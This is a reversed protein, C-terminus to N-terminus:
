PAVKKWGNSKLTDIIRSAERFSVETEYGFRKLLSAQKYTCRKAKIRRLIENYLARCHAVPLGTIDIGNRRLMAEQAATLPATIKAAAAVRTASIRFISFADVRQMEYDVRATVLTRKSKAADEKRRDLVAKAAQELAEIVDMPKGAEAMQRKAEKVVEEDHKGGLVDAACVLKHKGANGVFDITLMSPKASAAIARRRAEADQIGDVVGPLVRTGRGVMQCNGTVFAKGNRRCIIAGTSVEICWVRDSEVPRDGWVRRDTATRSVSVCSRTPDIRMMYMTKQRTRHETAINCRIGRRVCLSQVRDALQKRSTCICMTRPDWDMSRSKYKAGDGVNMAEILVLLQRADMDMLPEALDKDMYMSLRSWGRLHREEKRRADGHSVNYTFADHRAICLNTVDGARRTLNKGYRMGCGSLASEIFSICEPHRMSQSITVAGTMKNTAGDTMWLGIFRLEDDSLPVGIAEEMGCVPIRFEPPMDQAVGVVNGSDKKDKGVRISHVMRHMNTVAIDLMPSAIGMMREDDRMERDVRALVEGADIAGSDVHYRYARDFRDDIGRWGDPTLIETESDLCYLARSMTPRAIAVVGIGPSDFGETAVGCNCLVQIKGENYANLIRRREDKFTGGHVIAATVGHRNFIESMREAHAVSSAFVLTRRGKAIEITPTVVKHLVKEQEMISALEGQNLDGAVTRVHSFDMDKVIVQQTEIPCLWGDEMAQMIEYKYAVSEFVMGLAAKDTRDPTATFGVVRLKSNKTFHAIVRRYSDATAHHAEDIVLLDFEHPEFKNMRDLNGMRACLTQVSAVVVPAKYMRGAKYEAMEIDPSQGTVTRIKDAAQQVLEERHAIVMVRGQRQRAIHAFCVTKGTGTPMVVLASKSGVISDIVGTVAEVQYPRLNM